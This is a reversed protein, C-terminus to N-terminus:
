IQNSKIKWFSENGKRLKGALKSDNQICLNNEADDVDLKSIIEDKQSKGYKKGNLLNGDEDRKSGEAIAEKWAKRAEPRKEPPLAAMSEAYARYFDDNSSISNTRRNENPLNGPLGMAQIIRKGIKTNLGKIM